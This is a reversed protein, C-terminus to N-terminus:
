VGAGHGVVTDMGRDLADQVGGGALAHGELDVTKSSDVWVAASAAAASPASSPWITLDSTKMMDPSAPM